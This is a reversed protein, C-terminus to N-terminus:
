GASAEPDKELAPMNVQTLGTSTDELVVESVEVYNGQMYAVGLQWLVAMTNADQVQEAICLIDKERAMINLNKIKEQRTKDKHLGQMISGDLKIYDMPVHTLFRVSDDRAGFHDLAFKFGAGRLKEALALVQRLHVVAIEENLQFCIRHAEVGSSSLGELIWDATSEDVVSQQSLRIFVLEPKKSSVFSLSAGIVWRDINKTLGARMAAPMFEAPLVTNGDNDIMRVLTDHANDIEENLGAVPEHLLCLRNEMLASRVKNVWMEDDERAQQKNVTVESIKVSDGGADRASRCATEVEGLLKEVPIETSDIEMLGVSCTLTTSRDEFEFVEGAIAKRLQNAWAEVDSMAGREVIATFMTGGFRGYLDDPQMYDSLVQSFQILIQETGLLGIDDHVKSFNDPRLYMIARVGGEPATDIRENCKNLFYHRHYFGTVPDKQVARELLEEPAHNEVNPMAVIARVAPEDDFSIVELRLELGITADKQTRGKMRLESDDWKDKICAVLAGKLLQQDSEIFLDMVPMGILDTEDEYGFTELWAPNAAVVIGEQIDAIAETVGQKLSHLEQKYQKASVMVDAFGNEINFSRHEREFVFVLRETNEISIVDRAGIRMAATISEEDVQNRVAIVPTTPCVHRALDCTTQLDLDPEDAFVFIVSPIRKEATEKLQQLLSIRNCHAPHGADRLAANIAQANDDKHSLVILSVSASNNM